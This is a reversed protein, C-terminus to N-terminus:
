GQDFAESFLDVVRQRAQAAAHADYRIRPDLPPANPEDFAHSLGDWIEYSVAGDLTQARQFDQVCDRVPAIADQGALIAHLRMRRDLTQGDVRAPFGCYPYMAIALEVGTLDAGAGNLATPTQGAGAFSLADLITWGGHSWGLLGLRTADIGPQEGAIALAAHIDAAREQGWLRMAGCVQSMAGFRGIGRAANSGVILVAYGADLLAAAYDEQVQRLGGCGHLLIVAPVPGQTNSPLRIDTHPRILAVQSELDRVPVTFGTANGGLSCAALASLGAALVIPIRIWASKFM